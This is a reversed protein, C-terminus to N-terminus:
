YIRRFHNEPASNNARVNQMKNPSLAGARLFDARRALLFVACFIYVSTKEIAVIHQALRDRGGSRLKNRASM